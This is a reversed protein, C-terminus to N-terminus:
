IIETLSRGKKGAGKIFPAKDGICAEFVYDISSQASEKCKNVERLHAM